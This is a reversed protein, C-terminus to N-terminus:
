YRGRRSPYFGLSLGVSVFNQKWGTANVNGYADDIEGVNGYVYEVFPILTASRAIPFEYGVGGTLGWGMGSVPVYTSPNYSSNYSSVGLGGKLFLGSPSPYYYMVAGVTEMDESADGTQHSWEEFSAGLRLSPNLTGGLEIGYTLGDERPGSACSDCSVNATGYGLDLHMWFGQHERDYAAQASLPAVVFLSLPAVVFLLCGMLIGCHAALRM